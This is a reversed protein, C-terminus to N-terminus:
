NLEIKFEAINEPDCLFIYTIYAYQILSLYFVKARLYILIMHIDGM